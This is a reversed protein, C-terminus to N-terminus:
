SDLPVLKAIRGASLFLKLLLYLKSDGGRFACAQLTYNGSLYVVCLWTSQICYQSVKGSESTQQWNRIQLQM